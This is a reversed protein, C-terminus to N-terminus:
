RVGISQRPVERRVDRPDKDERLGVFRAHRLHNQKTWEAFEAQVVLRPKLWRCKKMVERTLAEGRRANKHEPLNVFPCHDTAFRKFKQTLQEKAEPVFGNKLKGVFLLNDEDYYGVLLSDFGRSGPVYGGVVLEQGKATRYKSWAGTRKGAKWDERRIRLMQFLDSTRAYWGTGHMRGILKLKPTDILQRRADLVAEDQVHMALVRGLVLGSNPGLDIIQMLECEMSVPSEAIRPPKVHLSPRTSLGAQILENVGLPFDTATINMAEANGESVLNVVFQRTEEVNARTDKPQGPARTSIGIGVVPPDGAFANFFSFPAANLLGNSDQSVIWAIPRPTITSVLLKYRESPSIAEFDFLM